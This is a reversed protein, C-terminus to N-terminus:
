SQRLDFQILETPNDSPERGLSIQGTGQLLCKEQHLHIVGNEDTFLFTGNTSHDELLFRDQSYEISAHNRSTLDDSLVLDHSPDRGMSVIRGEEHFRIEQDRHRFLLCHPLLNDALAVTTEPDRQAESLLVEYVTTMEQNGRIPFKGILLTRSGIGNTAARTTAETTLIQGPNALNVLREATNITTGFADGNDLVVEGYHLGIKLQIDPSGQAVERIVTEQISTAASLAADASLFTLVIEDGMTKIVKGKNKEAIRTIVAFCKGIRDLDLTDGLSNDLPANKSVDTFLVGLMETKM